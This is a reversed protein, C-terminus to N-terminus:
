IFFLLLFCEMLVSSRSIGEFFNASLCFNDRVLYFLKYNRMAFLGGDDRTIGSVIDVKAHRGERVLKTPHDPLYHGDVWPM